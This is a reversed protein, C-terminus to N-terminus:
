LWCSDNLLNFLLLLIFVLIVLVGLL